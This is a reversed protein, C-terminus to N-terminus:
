MFYVELLISLSAIWDDQGGVGQLYRVFTRLQRRTAVRWGGPSRLYFLLAGSTPMSIVLFETFLDSRQGIKKTNFKTACWAARSSIM